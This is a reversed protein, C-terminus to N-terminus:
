RRHRRRQESGKEHRISSRAVSANANGPAISCHPSFLPACCSGRIRICAPLCVRCGSFPPLPLLVDYQRAPFTMLHRLQASRARQAARCFQFKICACAACTGGCDVGTEDQNQVGNFCTPCTHCFYAAAVVQAAGYLSVARTISRCDHQRVHHLNAPRHACSECVAACSRTCGVGGRGSPFSHPGPQPLLDSGTLIWCQRRPSESSWSM